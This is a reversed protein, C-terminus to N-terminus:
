YLQSLYAKVGIQWVNNLGYPDNQANIPAYKPQIESITDLGLDFYNRKLNSVFAEIGADITDFTMLKSKKNTADWYMLGGVNNKEKYANSLYEGNKFGCEHRAIAVPLRWDINYSTAVEKIKCTTYDMDCGNFTTDVKEVDEVEIIEIEEEKIEEKEEKKEEVKKIVKSDNNVVKNAKDTTLANAKIVVKKLNTSLNSLEKKPLLDNIAYISLALMIYIIFEQMCESKAIFLKKIFNYNIDLLLATSFIFGVVLYKLQKFTYKILKVSLRTLVKVGKLILNKLM